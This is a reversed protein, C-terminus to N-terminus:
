CSNTELVQDLHFQVVSVDPVNTLFKNCVQSRFTIFPISATVKLEEDTVHDFHQLRSLQLDVCLKREFNVLDTEKLVDQLAEEIYVGGEM